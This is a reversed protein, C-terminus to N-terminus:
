QCPKKRRENPNRKKAKRHPATLRTKNKKALINKVKRVLKKVDFPKDLFGIAGLEKAKAKIYENGYASIMMVMLKPRIQKAEELITLESSGPLKYDLIMLDYKHRKIKMIASKGDHAKDTLFGEEKFIDSLLNCMDVDDEVILIKDM